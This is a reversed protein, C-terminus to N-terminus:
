PNVVAYSGDDNQKIWGQDKAYQVNKLFQAQQGVPIKKAFRNAQDARNGETDALWFVRPDFRGGTNPDTVNWNSALWENHRGDSWGNAKAAQWAANTRNIADQNGLLTASIGLVGEKSQAMGPTIAEALNQRADSPNGLVGLQRSAILNADKSFEDYSAQAMKQADPTQGTANVGIKDLVQRWTSGAQAGLGPNWGPQNVQARMDQILGAVNPTDKAATVLATAAKQSPAQVNEIYGPQPPMGVGGAEPPPPPPPQLYLPGAQPKEAGGGGGGGGGAAPLPAPAPPTPAGPAGPAPAAPQPYRGEGSAPPAVLTPNLKQLNPNNSLITHVQDNPVTISQGDGIQIDTGGPQTGQTLPAAPYQIGGARGPGGPYFMNGQTPYNMSGSQITGLSPQAMAAMDRAHQSAFYGGLVMQSPNAGGDLQQNVSAMTTPNIVGPPINKLAERVDDATLTGAQAKPLLPSMYAQQVALQDLQANVAASTGQGENGVGTGASQMTQGFKWLAAPNQSALANFKGLDVQGTTPDISQQYIGTLANQAAFEKINTLANISQGARELPNPPNALRQILANTGPDPTAVGVIGGSM